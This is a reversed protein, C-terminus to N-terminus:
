LVGGDLTVVREDKPSPNADLFLSTLRSSTLFDTPLATLSSLAWSPRFTTKTSADASGWAAPTNEFKM